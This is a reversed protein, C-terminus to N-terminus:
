TEKKTLIALRYYGLHHFVFLLGSLKQAPLWSINYAETIHTLVKAASQV